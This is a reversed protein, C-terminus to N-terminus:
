RLVRNMQPEVASGSEAMIQICESRLATKHDLPDSWGIGSQFFELASLYNAVPHRWPSANVARNVDYRTLGRGVIDMGHAYACSTLRSGNFAKDDLAKVIRGAAGPYARELDRLESQWADM